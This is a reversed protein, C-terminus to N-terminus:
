PIYELHRGAGGIMEGPIERGTVEAVMRPVMKQRDHWCVQGHKERLDVAFCGKGLLLQGRRSPDFPIIPLSRSVDAARLGIRVYRIRACASSRWIPHLDCHCSQHDCHRIHDPHYGDYDGYIGQDEPVMEPFSQHHVDSDNQHKCGEIPSEQLVWLGVNTGPFLTM